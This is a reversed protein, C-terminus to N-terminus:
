LFVGFRRLALLAEAWELAAERSDAELDLTRSGSKTTVSICCLADRVSGLNKKFVLTQPPLPTAPEAGAGEAYGDAGSSGGGGGAGGSGASALLAANGGAGGAGGGASGGGAGAGGGGGSNAGAGAGAGAWAGVGAGGSSGVLSGELVDGIDTVPIGADKDKLEAATPPRM